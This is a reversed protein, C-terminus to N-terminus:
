PPFVGAEVLALRAEDLLLAMMSGLGRIDVLVGGIDFLVVEIPSTAL